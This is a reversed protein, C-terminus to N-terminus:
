HFPSSYYVPQGDREAIVFRYRRSEGAFQPNFWEAEYTAMHQEDMEGLYRVGIDYGEDNVPRGNEQLPVWHQGDDSAEIHVLPKNLSINGAPLDKWRFIWRNERNIEADFFRPEMVTVRKGSSSQPQPFYHQTILRFDWTDPADILNGQKVLDKALATSHAALFPATSPGYITHGGEYWQQSYEEPTTAYGFFGNALSAIAVHAVPDDSDDFVKQVQESIRRGTEVTIEFPLGVFALDDVQLLQIDLRYPYYDAPMVWKQLYSLFWRKHGQCGETFIWRPWGMRVFPLYGLVPSEHETPAGILANGMIAHDCLQHGDIGPQELVNIERLASRIVVDDKLKDDLSHFLEWAKEGLSVGIRRSEIYGLMGFRVAPAMDAHTGEFGGHVPQWSPAYTQKIRWEVEESLYGWLDAGYPKTFEPISTGHISFNSFAGLPKYQGSTDDLADIRVMYLAPNIAHFKREATATKDVVNDNALYPVIARNRTLGWVDLSGTAIKAPRRTDYASIVASAINQALFEYVAPDFGPENSGFLNYINSGLFQGPGTHTHTPLLALGNFQIDTKEAILEAVRHHLIESGSGLDIQAIAIPEGTKPKIYFARTKLRTRFGDGETAWSAYGFKPIGPPPTIDVEAVGALLTPSEVAPKAAQRKLHFDQNDFCASLVAALCSLLLLRLWRM